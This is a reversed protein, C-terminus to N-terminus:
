INFKLINAAATDEVFNNSSWLWLFIYNYFKINEYLDKKLPWGEPVFEKLIINLSKDEDKKKCQEQQHEIDESFIDVTITNSHWGRRISSNCVWSL